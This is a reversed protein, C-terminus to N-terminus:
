RTAGDPICIFPLLGRETNSMLSYTSLFFLSFTIHHLRCLLSHVTYGHSLYGYVRKGESIIKRLMMRLNFIKGVCGREKRFGGQEEIKEKAINYENGIVIRCYVKGPTSSLVRVM